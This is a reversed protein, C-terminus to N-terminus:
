SQYGMRLIGDSLPLEVEVCAGPSHVLACKDEGRALAPDSVENRFVGVVILGHYSKTRGKIM